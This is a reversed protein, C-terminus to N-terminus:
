MMATTLTSSSLFIQREPAEVLFQEFNKVNLFIVNLHKFHVKKHKKQPFIIELDLKNRTATWDTDDM